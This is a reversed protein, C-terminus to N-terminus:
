PQVSIGFSTECVESFKTLAELNTGYNKWQEDPTRYFTGDDPGTRQGNQLLREESKLTPMLLIKLAQAVAQAEEQTLEGVCVEHLADVRQDPLVRLLRIVEVIARWNWFNMSLLFENTKLDHISLSVVAEKEACLL